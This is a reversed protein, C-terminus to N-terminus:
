EWIVSTVTLLRFEM